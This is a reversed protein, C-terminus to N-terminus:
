KQGQMQKNVWRQLELIERTIRIVEQYNSWKELMDLAKQIQVFTENQYGRATTFHGDREKRNRASGAEELSQIAKQGALRNEAERKPPGVLERLIEVAKELKDAADLNFIRNYVGRETARQLDTRATALRDVIASQELKSERVDRQQEATLTDVASVKRQLTDTRRYEDEQKRRQETLLRKIRDIEDQLAKEIEAISKVSLHIERSTEVNRGGIDKFDSARYRVYVHDGPKIVSNEDGAVVRVAQLDIGGHLCLVRDGRKQGQKEPHDCKGILQDLPLALKRWDTTRDGRVQYEIAVEDIGYDDRAEFVLPRNCIETVDESEAVPNLFRFEPKKDERGHIKYRLDERSKLGNQALLRFEYESFPEKVSFEGRVVRGDEVVLSEVAEREKPGTAMWAAQLPEQVKAEFRVKTYIPVSIDRKTEPRDKPTDEMRLYPPFVFWLRLEDITPPTLTDVAYWETEDDGGKVRFTFPGPVREFTYDFIDDGSSTMSEEKPSGDSFRYTLTVEDPTRVPALKHVKVRVKFKERGREIVMRRNEGFELVELRIKQPWRVNFGVARAVYIGAYVPKWLGLGGLIGILALAAAGIWGVNWMTLIKRFEIRGALDDTERVLADVLEPSNFGIAGETSEESTRSLQLASILRDNLEPHHREIFLALDDDSIPVLQPRLGRRWLLWVFGAAGAVLFTLRVFSPLVFLFDLLFTTAVYAGLSLLARSAGDALFLLRIGARLGQIRRAIRDLGSPAAVIM